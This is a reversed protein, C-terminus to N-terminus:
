ARSARFLFADFVPVPNRSVKMIRVRDDERVQFRWSVADKALPVVM